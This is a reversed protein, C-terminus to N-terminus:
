KKMLENYLDADAATVNTRQLLQEFLQLGPQNTTQQSQRIRKIAEILVTDQSITTSGDRNNEILLPEKM